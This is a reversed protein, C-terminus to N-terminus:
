PADCILHSLATKSDALARRVFELFAFVNIGLAESYSWASGLVAGLDTAKGSPSWLLADSGLTDNIALAYSLGQGGVEQLV